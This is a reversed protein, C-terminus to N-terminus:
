RKIGAARAVLEAEEALRASKPRDVKRPPAPTAATAPTLANESRFILKLTQKKKPTEIAEKLHLRHRVPGLLAQYEPLDENETITSFTPSPPCDYVVPGGEMPTSVNAPTEDAQMRRTKPGDPRIDSQSAKRKPNGITSTGSVNSIGRITETTQSAGSQNAIEAAKPPTKRFIQALGNENRIKLILRQPKPTPGSIPPAQVTAAEGGQHPVESAKEAAERAAKHASARKMGELFAASLHEREAQQDEIVVLGSPVAQQSNTRWNFSVLPGLRTSSSGKSRLTPGTRHAGQQRTRPPTPSEGPMSVTALPHRAGAQRPNGTPAPRFPTAMTPLGILQPHRRSERRDLDLPYWLKYKRIIPPTANHVPGPVSSPLVTTGATWLSTPTYHSFYLTDPDAIGHPDPKWVGVLSRSLGREVLYKEAIRLQDKSAHDYNSALILYWAHTEFVDRDIVESTELGPIPVSLSVCHKRVEDFSAPHLARVSVAHLLQEIETGDLGLICSIEADDMAPDASMRQFIHYQM